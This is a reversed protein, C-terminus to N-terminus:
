VWVVSIALHNSCFQNLKNFNVYPHISINFWSVELLTM